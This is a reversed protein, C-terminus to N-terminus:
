KLPALLLPQRLDPNKCERFPDEVSLFIPLFVEFIERSEWSLVLALVTFLLELRLFLQEENSGELLM